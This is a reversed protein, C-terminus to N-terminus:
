NKPRKQNTESLSKQKQYLFFVVKKKRNKKFNPCFQSAKSTYNQKYRQRKVCQIREINTAKHCM